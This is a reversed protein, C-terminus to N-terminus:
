TAEQPPAISKVHHTTCYSRHTIPACCFRMKGESDDGIWWSCEDDGKDAFLKGADTMPPEPPPKRAQTKLWSELQGHPNWRAKEPHSERNNVSEPVAWAVSPVTEGLRRAIQVVTLGDRALKLMLARRGFYSREREAARRRHAEADHRKLALLVAGSTVPHGSQAAISAAIEASGCGEAKLRKATAIQDNTWRM